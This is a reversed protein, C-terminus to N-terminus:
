ITPLSGRRRSSTRWNGGNSGSNAYNGTRGLRIELNRQQEDIPRVKTKYADDHKSEKHDPKLESVDDATKKDTMSTRYNPSMTRKTTNYGKNFRSLDTVLDSITHRRAKGIAAMKEQVTHDDDEDSSNDSHQQQPYGDTAAHLKSESIGNELHLSIKFHRTQDRSARSIADKDREQVANM